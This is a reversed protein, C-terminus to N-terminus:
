SFRITTLPTMWKKLMLSVSDTHLNWGMNSLDHVTLAVQNRPYVPSPKISDTVACIYQFAFNHREIGTAQAHNSPMIGLTFMQLMNMGSEPNGKTYWTPQDPVMEPLSTWTDGDLGPNGLRIHFQDEEDYGDIVYAHGGNYNYGSVLVPRGAALEQKLMLTIEELSYFDRFYQQVGRDYDFYNALAMPQYISRAGSELVSYRMKVAIGCDLSLQAVADAQKQNYQGEVYRDLMNGWDYTHASFDAKLTQQCGTSDTYEFSGIGRQPWQWYRMVQTMATAVCGVVCREGTSDAPCMNNFPAYQDWVDTLLPEVRDPLSQAAVYHRSNRRILRQAMLSHATLILLLFLFIKKM